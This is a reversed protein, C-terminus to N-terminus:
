RVALTGTMYPHVTCIFGYSGPAPATFSLTTTCPGACTPSTGIGTVSVNHPVIKDQNSLVITVSAGSSAFLTQPTFALNV